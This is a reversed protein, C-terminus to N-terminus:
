ADLISSNDFDKALQPDQFTRVHLAGIFEGLLQSVEAESCEPRPWQHLWTGLGPCEGVDEMVLVHSPRHYDLLRPPRINTSGIGALAGGPGFAAMSHAEIDMRHPDLRIDPKAAIYSPAHKVIVPEPRGRVRWVFNLHGGTLIEPEGTPEFRPLRQELHDLVMESNM